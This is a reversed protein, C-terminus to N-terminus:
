GAGLVTALISAILVIAGFAAFMWLVGVVVGFLSRRTKGFHFPLCLPGFAVVAAWFSADNWARALREGNLRRLDERVILGPLAIGLALELVFVLIEAV